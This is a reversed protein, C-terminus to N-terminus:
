AARDRVARVLLWALVGALVALSIADAPGVWRPDAEGVDVLHNVLHLGYEIVAFALVPIRWAPRRAAILMAVGLALYFSSVDRVYHDNRAGFPGIRDFFTGPAVAMFLGLVAHYAGLVLLGLRVAM